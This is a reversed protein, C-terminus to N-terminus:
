IGKIFTNTTKFLNKFTVENDNKARQYSLINLNKEQFWM